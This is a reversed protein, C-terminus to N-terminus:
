GSVPRAVRYAAFTGWQGIKMELDSAWFKFPKGSTFFVEVLKFKNAPMTVKLKTELGSTHPLLLQLNTPYAGVGFDLRLIVDATAAYAINMERCHGWGEMGLSTMLCHYSLRDYVDDDMPAISPQWVDLITGETTPWQFITGLDRTYLGEANNFNLIIAKRGEVDSENVNMTADAVNHTYLAYTPTITLSLDAIVTM